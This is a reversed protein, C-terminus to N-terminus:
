GEDNSYNNGVLSEFSTPVFINLEYSVYHVLRFKVYIVIDGSNTLLIRM